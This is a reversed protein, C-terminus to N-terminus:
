NPFVPATYSTSTTVQIVAAGGRHRVGVGFGLAYYSSILPYRQDSGPIIRLGQYDPNAHVRFGVPNGEANPGASAVVAVYGAPIFRSEIVLADGYSGLVPLGNWQAPAQEGIIQETVLRAPAAVSPIFDFHAEVSDAGPEGARFTAIVKAENPHALILLKRGSDANFGKGSVKELLTEVDSPDLVASSSTLYHTDTNPDFEAGLYSPIHFGDGNYLGYEPNGEPTTGQAPDFLRSLVATTTKRNAGELVSAHVAEVQRTDADRLYKWTFRSAIDYDEFGYGLKLVDNPLRNGQPVGFESALEFQAGAVSQPVADIQRTTQYSVLSALATRHQNYIELTELFEAWVTNLDTGDSTQSVLVDGQTNTGREAGFISFFPLNTTM